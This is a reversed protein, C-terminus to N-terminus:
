GPGHGLDDFFAQTASALFGSLVSLIKREDAQERDWSFIGLAVFGLLVAAVFAYFARRMVRSFPSRSPMRSVSNTTKGLLAIAAPWDLHKPRFRSPRGDATM